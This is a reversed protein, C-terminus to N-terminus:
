EKPTDFVESFQDILLAAHRIGQIHDENQGTLSDSLFRLYSAAAILVSKPPPNGYWNETAGM